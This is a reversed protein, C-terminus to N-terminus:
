KRELFRLERREGNVEVTAAQEPMRIGLCRVRARGNTVVVMQEDGEGFTVNNIIVLPRAANGSFGNIRVDAVVVAVKNSPTVTPTFQLRGSNPYFPDKGGEQLPAFHSMPIAADPAAAQATKAAPTNTKTTAAATKPSAAPAATVAALAGAYFATLLLNRPFRTM